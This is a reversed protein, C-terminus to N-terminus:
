PTNPPRKMTSKSGNFIDSRRILALPRGKTNEFCRWLYFGLIAQSLIMTSFGLMIMLILTTYGSVPILGLLKSVLTVLAILGSLGLSCGGLWLLCHLPLDSFSVVSNFFYATKKRFTWASNGKERARRDYSVYARRYGVWFLQAVLSSNAERLNLLEAAV